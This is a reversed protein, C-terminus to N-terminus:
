MPYLSNYHVEAWFSLWLVRSHLTKQPKIDIIFNTKYSSLVCIKRGYLDAVAQLTVHDGWEGDKSMTRVYQDFDEPVYPKYLDSETKLQHIAMRRVEEHREMTGFLQDALSRFQCNGDGKVKKEKLGYHKLRDALNMYDMDAETKTPMNEVVKPKHAIMTMGPDDFQYMASMAGASGDSSLSRESTNPNAPPPPPPPLPMLPPPPPPPLSGGPPMPPASASLNSAVQPVLVAAVPRTADMSPYSVLSGSSSASFSPNPGAAFSGSSAAHSRGLSGKAAAAIEAESGSLLDVPGGASSAETAPTAEGVKGSAESTGISLDDFPLGGANGQIGNGNTKGKEVAPAATGSRVDASEKPRSDLLKTLSELESIARCLPQNLKKYRERKEVTAKFETHKPITDLLLSSFRAQIVFLNFQDRGARYIMAQRMLREARDYYEEIPFRSNVPISPAQKMLLQSTKLKKMTAVALRTTHSHATEKENGENEDEDDGTQRKGEHEDRYESAEERNASGSESFIRGARRRWARAKELVRASLPLPNQPSQPSLSLSLSM